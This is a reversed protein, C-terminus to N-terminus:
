DYDEDYIIENPAAELLADIRWYPMGERAYATLEPEGDTNIWEAVVVWGTLLAGDGGSEKEYALLADEIKKEADYLVGPAPESLPEEDDM